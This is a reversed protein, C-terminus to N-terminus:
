PPLKAPRDKRIGYSRGVLDRCEAALAQANASLVTVKLQREREAVEAEAAANLSSDYVASNLDSELPLATRITM